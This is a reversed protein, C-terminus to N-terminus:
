KGAMPQLLSNQSKFERQVISALNWFNKSLKVEKGNFFITCMRIKLQAFLFKLTYFNIVSLNIVDFDYTFFHWGFHWSWSLRLTPLVVLVTLTESAWNDVSFRFRYGLYRRVFKSDFSHTMPRIEHKIIKARRRIKGFKCFNLNLFFRYEEFFLEFKVTM